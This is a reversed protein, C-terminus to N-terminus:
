KLLLENIEEILDKAAERIAVLQDFDADMLEDHTVITEHSIRGDPYREINFHRVIPM